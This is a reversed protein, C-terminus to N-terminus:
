IFTSKTGRQWKPEFGRHSGRPRSRAHSLSTKALKSPNGLLTIQRESPPRVLPSHTPPQSPSPSSERRGALQCLNPAISSPYSLRRCPSYQCPARMSIAPVGITSSVASSSRGMPDAAVFLRRLRPASGFHAQAQHPPPPSSAGPLFVFPCPHALSNSPEVDLFAHAVAAVQDEVQMTPELSGAAVQDEAFSATPALTPPIALELVEQMPVKM